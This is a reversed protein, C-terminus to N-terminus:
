KINKIKRSISYFLLVYILNIILSSYISRFLINIDLVEYNIIVLILYISLRYLIIIFISSLLTTIMNYPAVNYITRILIAVLFFLVFNLFLTNTYVIDYLLGLIMSYIYYKKLDRKKFYPFIIVLSLLSCLPYLLNSVLLLNSLINDLIFSIILIIIVM